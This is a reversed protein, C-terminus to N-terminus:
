RFWWIYRVNIKGLQIWCYIWIYLCAYACVTAFVLVCTISGYQFREVNPHRLCHCCRISHTTTAANCVYLLIFYFHLLHTYLIISHTYTVASMKTVRTSLLTFVEKMNRFIGMRGRSCRMYTCAQFYHKSVTWNPLCKWTNQSRVRRILTVRVIRFTALFSRWFIFVSFHFVKQLIKLRDRKYGDGKCRISYPSQFTEFVMACHGLSDPM